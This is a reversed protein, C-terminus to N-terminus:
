RTLHQYLAYGLGVTASISTAVLLDGVIAILPRYSITTDLRKRAPNKVELFVPKSNTDSSRITLVESDNNKPFKEAVVKQIQPSGQSSLYKLESDELESGLQFQRSLMELCPIRLPRGALLREEQTSNSNFYVSRFIEKLQPHLTSGYLFKADEYTLLNGREKCKIRSGLDSIWRNLENEDVEQDLALASRFRVSYFQSTKHLNLLEDKANERQTFDPSKIEPRDIIWGEEIEWGYETGNAAQGYPGSSRENYHSQETQIVIEATLINRLNRVEHLQNQLDELSGM